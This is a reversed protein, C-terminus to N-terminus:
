LKKLLMRPGHVCSVNTDEDAAEDRKDDSVSGSPLLLVSHDLGWVCQGTSYCAPLHVCVSLSVIWGCLYDWRIVKQPKQRCICVSVRIKYRERIGVRMAFTSGPLLPMCVCEGFQHALCLDLCCPVLTGLIGAFNAHIHAVYSGVNRKCVSLALSLHDVRCLSWIHNYRVHLRTEVSTLCVLAGTEGQRRSPPSLRRQSASAPSRSCPTQWRPSLTQGGTINVSRWAM